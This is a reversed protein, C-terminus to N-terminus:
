LNVISPPLAEGDFEFNGLANFIGGGAGLGAPVPGGNSASREGGVARNHSIFSLDIDTTTGFYNAIGGGLGAGAFPVGGSATNGSGGIAENDRITCGIVTVETTGSGDDFQNNIAGGAGTGA